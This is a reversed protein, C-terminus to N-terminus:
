KKGGKGKKKCYRTKNKKSQKKKAFLVAGDGVTIGLRAGVGAGVPTGVGAGVPTGVGAGVPTGVRDGVGAGVAMGVGPGVTIKNQKEMTKTTTLFFLYIFVTAM